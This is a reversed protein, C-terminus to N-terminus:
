IVDDCVHNNLLRRVLSLPITGFLMALPAFVSGYKSVHEASEQYWCPIAQHNIILSRALLKVPM